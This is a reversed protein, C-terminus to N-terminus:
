EMLFRKLDEIWLPKSDLYEVLMEKRLDEDRCGALDGFGADRVLDTLKGVKRNDECPYMFIAPKRESGKFYFLNPLNEDAILVDRHISDEMMKRIKRVASFGDYDTVLKLDYGSYGPYLGWFSDICFDVNKDQKILFSVGTGRRGKFDSIMTAEPTQKSCREIQEWRKAWFTREERELILSILLLDHVGECLVVTKKAM